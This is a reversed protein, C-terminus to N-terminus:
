SGGLSNNSIIRDTPPRPNSIALRSSRAAPTQLAIRPLHRRGRADFCKPSKRSGASYTEASRFFLRRTQGRDAYPATCMPSAQAAATRLSGRDRSRRTSSGKKSGPTAVTLYAALWRSTPTTATTGSSSRVAARGSGPGSPLVRRRTRRHYRGGPRATGPRLGRDDRVAGGRYGRDPGPVAAQARAQGAVAVDRLLHQAGTPPQGTRCLASPGALPGFESFSTPLQGKGTVLTPLWGAYFKGAKAAAKAKQRLDAKPDIIDGAVSLHADVAERAILLHM